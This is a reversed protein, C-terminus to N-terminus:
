VWCGSRKLGLMRVEEFRVNQDSCVWCGSRKLGLM